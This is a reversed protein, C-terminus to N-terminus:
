KGTIRAIERQVMVEVIEPLHQDLWQKLMPRLMDVVLDDLTTVSPSGVVGAHALPARVVVSSLAELAQRTAQVSIDSVLDANNTAQTAAPAHGHQGTEMAPPTFGVPDTLELVQEAFDGDVDDSVARIHSGNSNKAASRTSAHSDEAIIRKISALIEEM